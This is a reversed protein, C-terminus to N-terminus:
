INKKKCIFIFQDKCLESKLFHVKRNKVKPDGLLISLLLSPDKTEHEKNIKKDILYRGPCNKIENWKIKNFVIDFEELEKEEKM